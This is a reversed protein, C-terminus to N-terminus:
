RHNSTAPHIFSVSPSGRVQFIQTRKKLARSRQMDSLEKM